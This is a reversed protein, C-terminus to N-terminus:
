THLPYIARAFGDQAMIALRRAQGQTLIADTAVVALTTSVRAAGKLRIALDDASLRAPSGHGGFEDNQEFPAAWFYKSDGITVAGVANAAVIAGVTIGDPTMASASGLGGKLNVVTAGFGAGTTGLAFDESANDAAAYALERYPPFCEWVKENGNESAGNLL